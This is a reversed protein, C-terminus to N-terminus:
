PGIPSARSAATLPGGYITHTRNYGYRLDNVVTPSIIKTWGAGVNQSRNTTVTESVDSLPVSDSTANVLIYHGFVRDSANFRHDFRALYQASDVNLLDTRFLNIPSHIAATQCRM